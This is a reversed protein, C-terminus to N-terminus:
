QEMNQGGCLSETVNQDAIEICAKIWDIFCVVIVWFGEFMLNASQPWLHEQYALLETGIQNVIM